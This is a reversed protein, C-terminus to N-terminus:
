SRKAMKETKLIRFRKDKKIKQLSSKTTEVSLFMSYDGPEWAFGSTEGPIKEGGVNGYMEAERWLDKGRNDASAPGLYVKIREYDSLREPKVKKGDMLSKYRKAMAKGWPYSTYGSKLFTAVGKSILDQAIWRQMRSEKAGYYPWNVYHVANDDVKTVFITDPSSSAGMHYKVGPQILIKDAPKELGRAGIVFGSEDLVNECAVRLIDKKKSLDM